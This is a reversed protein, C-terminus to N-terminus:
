HIFRMLLGTQAWAAVRTAPSAVSHNKDWHSSYLPCCFRTPLIDFYYTRLATWHEQRLVTCGLIPRGYDDQSTTDGCVASGQKNSFSGISNYGANASRRTRRQRITHANAGRTSGDNSNKIRLVFSRVEVVNSYHPLGVLMNLRKHVFAGRSTHLISAIGCIM